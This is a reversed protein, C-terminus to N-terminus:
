CQQPAPPRTSASRPMVSYKANYQELLPKIKAAKNQGGAVTLSWLAFLSLAMRM